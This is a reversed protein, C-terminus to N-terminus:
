ININTSATIALVIGVIMTGILVGVILIAIPEMLTLVQKMRRKCSKDHLTAVASLMEGLQGTKDGVNILNMSTAPILRAQSLAESFTMGSEIAKVMNKARARRNTFNSAEAALELAAVLSVRAQLMAAALAAWRAADQESLWPGIVPVDIVKNLVFMRVSAQKFTMLLLTLVSIVIGAVVYPHQNVTKGLTLVAYALWPLPNDGDLMHSFKPVVSFFIILMAGLGSGILVIPYTLASRIDARVSEDYQMQTSASNLAISLTGGLEGARVLPPIFSPFPLNSQVIADSFKSGGEVKAAIHRFGDALKPHEDNEAIAYVADILSVGSESLTALEQIPLVLDKERVVRGRVQHKKHEHLDFAQINQNSLEKFAEQKSSAEIRGVIRQNTQTEIGKYDFKM